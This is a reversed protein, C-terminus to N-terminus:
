KSERLNQLFKEMGRRIATASAQHNNVLISFILLKKTKTYLFGSLAVVNSLTGTKAYISSSDTKYYNLLTGTNGSPLINKIREMGFETKMKALIAVFDRPSFLNYRSLGCGDVWHPKQPLDHFDTKLLTDIIAEDNMIGLKKDSVMLLTQEAFFNDSRHMMPSLISDTPQSHIINWRRITFELVDGHDLDCWFKDKIPQPITYFVLKGLTDRLIDIATFSGETVFPISTNTFLSKSRTTTFENSSLKRDLDIYGRSILAIPVTASNNNVLQDFYSFQTKFVPEHMGIGVGKLTDIAKIYQHNLDVNIVNGFVPFENREAMYSGMYDNWSWGDGWMDLKMTDDCFALQRGSTVLSKLFEFVPQRKYDEHLFSPDGTPRIVAFKGVATQEEPVGWKLGDLSDGLYKMAAYCTPIKTNSAPVFYHDGQYDYISKNNVPDYVTIGVHATAFAPDKLIDEQAINGIQKQISCSTMLALLAIYYNAKSIKMM